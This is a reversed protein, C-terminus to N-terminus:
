RCRTFLIIRQDIRIVLSQHYTKTLYKCGGVGGTLPAIITRSFCGGAGGGSGGM